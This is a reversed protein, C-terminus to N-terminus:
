QKPTIADSNSICNSINRTTIHLVTIKGANAKFGMKEIGLSDMPTKSHKIKLDNKKIIITNIKPM